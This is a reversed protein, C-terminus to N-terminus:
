PSSNRLRKSTFRRGVASSGTFHIFDIENEILARGVQGDGYLVQFVGEPFQAKEILSALLQSTLVCEESHKLVVVNGALLAQSSNAVFQGTPFNWPTIVAAVGHPEYHAVTQHTPYSDLVKSALLRAAKETQNKLFRVASTLEQYSETIPKGMEKSQLQAVEGAYRELLERYRDVYACREEITMQRWKLFSRKAAEVASDIQVSTSSRVRGIEEFNRGPNTSIMESIM